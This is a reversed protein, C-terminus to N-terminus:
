TYTGRGLSCLAALFRITTGSNGCFLDATSNPIVGARGTLSVTNSARDIQPAFGLTTLCDLMVHTDDAFLVNSLTCPGEALAALVLARNTLSKSGPPTIKARFPATFPPISRDTM